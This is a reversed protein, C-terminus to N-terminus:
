LVLIVPDAELPGGCRETGGVRTWHLEVQEEALVTGNSTLARLTVTDPASLFSIAWARDDVRNSYDLSPESTAAPVSSSRAPSDPDFPRYSDIPEGQLKTPTSCEGKHCAQVESVLRTDGNLEVSLSSSWGIAPCLEPTCGASLLASVAAVIGVSSKRMVSSRPVLVTQTTGASKSVASHGIVSASIDTEQRV